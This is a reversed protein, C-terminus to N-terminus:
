FRVAGAMASLLDRMEAEDPMHTVNAYERLDAHFGAARMEAVSERALAVPFVPDAVGHFAHVVPLEASAQSHSLLTPPLVGSVPFIASVSEPHALAMAYAVVAGQSLGMVLPKGVTPRAATLAALLPALRDAAARAGRARDKDFYWFYAGGSPHGYPIILRAKGPYRAFLAEAGLPDAGMPHLTVIM